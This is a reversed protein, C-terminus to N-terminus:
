NFIIRKLTNSTYHSYLTKKEDYKENEYKGADIFEDLGINPIKDRYAVYEYGWPKTVIKKDYERDNNTM